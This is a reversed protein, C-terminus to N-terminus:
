RLVTHRIVKTSRGSAMVTRPACPAAAGTVGAGATLVKGNMMLRTMTRSAAAVHAARTEFSANGHTPTSSLSYSFGFKIAPIEPSSM